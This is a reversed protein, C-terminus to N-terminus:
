EIYYKESLIILNVNKSLQKIVYGSVYNLM